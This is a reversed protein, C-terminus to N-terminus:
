VQSDGTITWGATGTLYARASVADTYTGTGYTVNSYTLNAAGLTISAPLDSNGSVFNAWGILTRSYNETSMACDDLMHEMTTISSLNWGGLNSDLVRNRIFTNSAISLNATNWGSPDMVINADSTTSGFFNGGFAGHMNTVNSVNWGDINPSKLGGNGFSNMIHRMNAVNITDWNGLDVEGMGCALVGYPQFPAVFYFVMGFTDAMNTVNSVNWNSFSNNNAHSYGVSAQFAGELTTVNSTDWTSVNAKYLTALHFIRKMNTVNSTDWNEIGPLEPKNYYNGFIGTYGQEFPRPDGNSQFMSEMNTVNSTNWNSLSGLYYSKYFCYSMDTVNSVDWGNLTATTMNAGVLGITDPEFAERFAGSLNVINSTVKSPWGLGSVGDTYFNRQEFAGYNGPRAYGRQRLFMSSCNANAPLNPYDLALIEWSYFDSTVHSVFSANQDAIYTVNGWRDLSIFRDQETGSLTGYDFRGMDGQVRITVNANSAYTHTASIVSGNHTYTNSVNGTDDWYVTFSTNATGRFPLSVINGNAEDVQTQLQFTRDSDAGALTRYYASV